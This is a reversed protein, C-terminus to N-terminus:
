EDKKFDYGSTVVIKTDKRYRQVTKAAKGNMEPM